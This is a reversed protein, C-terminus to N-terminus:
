LIFQFKDDCKKKLKTIEIPSRYEIVYTGVIMGQVEDLIISFNASDIDIWRWGISESAREYGCVKAFREPARGADRFPNRFDPSVAM